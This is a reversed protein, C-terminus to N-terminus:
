TAKHIMSNKEVAVRRALNYTKPEDPTTQLWSDLRGKFTETTVGRLNQLDGLIANLLQEFKRAPCEYMKTNHMKIPKWSDNNERNTALRINDNIKGM